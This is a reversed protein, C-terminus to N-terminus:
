SVQVRQSALYAAATPQPTRESSLLGIPSDSRSIAPDIFAADLRIGDAIADNAADVFSSVIRGAVDPDDHNPTFQAVVIRHDGAQAAAGGMADHLRRRLQDFQQDSPEPNTIQGHTLVLGIMDSTDMYNSVEAVSDADIAAVVPADGGNLTTWANRWVATDLATDIEAFPIWGAVHSGFRDAVKEAFRPWWREAVDVNDLGGENTVWRPEAGDHLTAWLRLGIADAAALIQEFRDSWAGDLDGPKPQLRAWDFSFRLDTIGLDHLLALDDPWRACFGNGATPGLNSTDAHGFTTATTLAAGRVFTM